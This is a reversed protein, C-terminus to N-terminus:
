FPVEESFALTQIQEPNPVTLHPRTTLSQMDTATIDVVHRKKLAHVTSKTEATVMARLFTRSYTCNRCKASYHVVRATEM